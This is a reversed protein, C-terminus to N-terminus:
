LSIVVRVCWWNVDFSFRLLTLRDKRRWRRKRSGIESGRRRSRGNGRCWGMYRACVERRKRRGGGINSRADATRRCTVAMRPGRRWRSWGRDRRLRGVWWWWLLLCRVCRWWWLLRRICGLWRWRHHRHGRRRSRWRVRWEHLLGKRRAVSGVGHRLVLDVVRHFAGLKRDSRELYATIRQTRTSEQSSLISSVVRDQYACTLSMSSAIWRSSIASFLMLQNTAM